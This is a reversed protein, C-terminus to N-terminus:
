VAVSNDLPLTRTAPPMLKKLLTKRVLASINSGALPFHDGVSGRSLPRWSWRAVRSGLPLTSMAPPKLVLSVPGLVSNNSGALATAVGNRSLWGAIIGDPKNWNVNRFVGPMLKVTRLVVSGETGTFFQAERLLAVSTDGP